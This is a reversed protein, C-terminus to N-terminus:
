KEIGCLDKNMGMLVCYIICIINCRLLIFSHMDLIRIFKKEGIFPHNKAEIRRHMSQMYLDHLWPKLENKYDLSIGSSTEVASDTNNPIYASSDANIEVAVEIIDMAPLIHILFTLIVIRQYIYIIGNSYKM